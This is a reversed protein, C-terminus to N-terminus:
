STITHLSSDSAHDDLLLSNDARTVIACRPAHGVTIFTTTLLLM